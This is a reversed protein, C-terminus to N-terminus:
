ESSCDDGKVQALTPPDPSGSEVEEGNPGWLNLGEEASPVGPPEGGGGTSDGDSAGILSDIVIADTAAGSEEDNEPGQFMNRDEGKALPTKDDETPKGLGAPAQSSRIRWFPLTESLVSTPLRGASLEHERTRVQYFGM